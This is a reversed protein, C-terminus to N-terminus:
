DVAAHDTGKSTPMARASDVGFNADAAEPLTRNSIRGERQKVRALALAAMARAKGGTTTPGTSMGGHNKCRGGAGDGLAICPSGKRTRAKCLGVGTKGMKHILLWARDDDPDIGVARLEDEIWDNGAAIAVPVGRVIDLLAATPLDRIAM